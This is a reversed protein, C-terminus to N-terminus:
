SKKNKNRRVEASKKGGNSGIMAMYGPRSSISKGGRSAFQKQLEPDIVAFGKKQKEM